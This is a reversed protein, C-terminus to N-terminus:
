GPPGPLNTISTKRGRAKSYDTDEQLAASTVKTQGSPKLERTHAM